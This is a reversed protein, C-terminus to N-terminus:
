FTWNRNLVKSLSWLCSASSGPPGLGLRGEFALVCYSPFGINQVFKIQLNILFIEFNIWEIGFSNVGYITNFKTNNWPQFLFYYYKHNDIYISLFRKYQTKAKCKWAFQVLWYVYSRKPKGIKNLTFHYYAQSQVKYSISNCKVKNTKFQVVQVVTKIQVAIIKKLTYCFCDCQFSYFNFM